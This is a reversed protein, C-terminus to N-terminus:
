FNDMILFFNWKELLLGIAVNIDVFLAISPKYKQVTYQLFVLFFGLYYYLKKQPCQSPLTRQKYVTFFNM